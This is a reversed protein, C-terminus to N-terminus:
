WTQTLDTNWFVKGSKGNDIPIVQGTISSSYSESALFCCLKAVDQMPVARKLAVTAQSELWASQGSQDAECEKRFQPTDVPGPSIANVRARHFINAADPTLSRMLGYQIGAKSCAYDPNGTVGFQGAESGASTHFYVFGQTCSMM